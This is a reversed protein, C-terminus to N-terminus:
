NTISGTYGSYKAEMGGLQTNTFIKRRRKSCFLEKGGSKRFALHKGTKDWVYATM